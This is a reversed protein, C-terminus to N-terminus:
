QGVGLDKYLIKGNDNRPIKDRRQSRFCDRPLHTKESIYRIIKHEDEEGALFIQMYKDNGICACDIQFAERLMRECQDLSVRLGYLKLFRAIRGVIYYYGDKDRKAIDGTKYIGRHEDGKQLDSQCEAYGMTVNAGKYVLEGEGEATTIENGNEDLLFLEGGPMAKGISGIKDLAMEPNLYALRATTETTGFTAFFQKGYTDAYEAVKRYLWDDLRGGGEALIRLWPFNNRFFHLKDFVEYSFPVGTFDTIGEKKFRNWFEVSMLNYDTLSVRAGAYLHSCIVSLGMTYQMPLYVLGNDKSTFGFFESVTKYSFCLNKYSHRVLKPSGTSGSTTMLLSLEDHIEYKPYTTKLLCYEQKEWVAYTGNFMDRMELPCWIYPPQYIGILKELLQRDMDMSLLLPVSKNEICSYFGAVAGITNKSMIFVINRRDLKKSFETAFAKLDGYTFISLTDDVLATSDNPKNEIALFM